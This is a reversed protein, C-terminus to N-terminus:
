CYLRGFYKVRKQRLEPVSCAVSTHPQKGDYCNIWISVTDMDVSHIHVDFGCEIGKRM